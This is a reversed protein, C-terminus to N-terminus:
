GRTDIKAEMRELRAEIKEFNSRLDSSVGKM